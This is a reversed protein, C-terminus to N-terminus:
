NSELMFSLSRVIDRQLVPLPHQFAGHGLARNSPFRLM